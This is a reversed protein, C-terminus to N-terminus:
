FKFRSLMAQLTQASNYMEGSIAASEQATASNSQVVASINEMGENVQSLFEAQEGSAVTIDNINDVIGSANTTASNLFEATDSAISTGMSVAQVTEGILVTTDRAAEASKSALNRVEDAVVAFGKGAEGARAAEVAANLALINTQFAIDDIVKIIKYIEDSKTKIQEMADLMQGMKTNSNEIEANVEIIATNAESTVKATGRTQESIGSVTSSLKDISAAQSVAGDSLLGATASVQESGLRVKETAGAINRLTDAMKSKFLEISDKINKLDGVYEVNSEALFDGDALLDMQAGIDSIINQLGGITTNMSEAIMGLEDETDFRPAETHLDGESLLKLRTNLVELRGSINGAIKNIIVFAVGLLVINIGVTILIKQTAEKKYVDIAKDIETYYNGTSVYWGYPEFKKTYGRKKFIGEENLKPFYFESYGGGELNGAAILGQIFLNGAKDQENWRMKGEFEPNPHVICQGAADDVWFYGAGGDYKTERVLKKAREFAEAESIEGETALRYNAELMGVINDVATEITGDFGAEQVSITRDYARKLSFYGVSTQIVISVVILLGITFVMKKKIGKNVNM